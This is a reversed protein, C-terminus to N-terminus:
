NNAPNPRQTALNTSSTPTSIALSNPNAAAQSHPSRSHDILLLTWSPIKRSMKSPPYAPLQVAILYWRDEGLTKSPFKQELSEFLATAQRATPESLDSFTSMTSRHSVPSHFRSAQIDPWLNRIEQPLSSQFRRISSLPRLVSRSSVHSQFTTAKRRLQLSMSRSTTLIRSVSSLTRARPM